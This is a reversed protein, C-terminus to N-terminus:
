SASEMLERWEADSLDAFRRRSGFGRGNEDDDGEDDDDEAWNTLCDECYYGNLIANCEPCLGDRLADLWDAFGEDRDWEREWWKPKVIHEIRETGFCEHFRVFRAVSAFTDELPAWARKSHYDQYGVGWNFGAVGLHDLFAIDSFSGLGVEAGVSEVRDCNERTEYDYMVVDTGMRDFSYIWNYSKGPRFHQASSNGSEEGTTLLWDTKVGLAPLLSCIVYAGLRDDLAPSKVIKGFRSEYIACHRGHQVADLHAVGLIDAGNDQYVYFEPDNWRRYKGTSWHGPAIDIRQGLDDFDRDTDGLCFRSLAASQFARRAHRRLRRQSTRESRTM